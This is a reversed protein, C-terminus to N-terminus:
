CLPWFGFVHKLHPNSSWKMVFKGFGYVESLFTWQFMSFVLDRAYLNVFISLSKSFLISWLFDSFIYLDISCTKELAYIGLLSKPSLECRVLQPKYKPAVQWMVGSIESKIGPGNTFVSLYISTASPWKTMSFHVPFTWIIIWSSLPFSQMTVNYLMSKAVSKHSPKNEM